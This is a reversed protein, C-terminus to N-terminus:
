ANKLKMLRLKIRRRVSNPGKKENGKEYYPCGYIRETEEEKKKKPIVRLLTLICFIVYTPVIRLRRCYIRM